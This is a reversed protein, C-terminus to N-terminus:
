TCICKSSLYIPDVMTELCLRYLQMSIDIRKMLLGGLYARLSSSMRASSPAPILGADWVNMFHLRNRQFRSMDTCKATNDDESKNMPYQLCTLIWVMAVNVM